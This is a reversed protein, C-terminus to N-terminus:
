ALGAAALSDPPAPSPACVRPKPQICWLRHAAPAALSVRDGHQQRVVGVNQLPRHVVGVTQWVTKGDAMTKISTDLDKVKSDM